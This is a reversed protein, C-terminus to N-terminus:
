LVFPIVVMGEGVICRRREGEVVSRENLQWYWEVGPAM